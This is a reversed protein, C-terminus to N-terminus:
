IAERLAAIVFDHIKGDLYDQAQSTEFGSRHDKALQFPNLTVTRIQSGFRSSMQAAITKDKEENKKKVELDYLKAKLLKLALRRNEHQSRETQSRIQIGSPLHKLIICSSIKNVAQGGAGGSRTTQIDLDEDKIEINITDEIDPLVSIAAFSTHRLGASNFPSNRILRHVGNEQKLFGFAYEGDFRISVSDICEASHEESDKRDLIEMQWKRADAYRLYCRYLMSVFNASELGGSGATITMIAPGNDHPASLLRTMEFSTLSHELQLARGQYSDAEEPFVTVYELLFKIDSDFVKLTEMVSVIQRREKLLSAAAQNNSWANPAAMREDIEALRNTYTKLPTAAELASLRKQCDQIIQLTTM